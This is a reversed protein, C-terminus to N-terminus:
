QDEKDKKAAVEAVGDDGGLESTDEILGEGEEVAAPDGNEPAEDSESKGPQEKKEDNAAEPVKDAPKNDAPKTPPVPGASNKSAKAAARIKRSRLLADPDFKTGCSPCEIPDRGLDYYKTACSQCIRKVGWDPKAM